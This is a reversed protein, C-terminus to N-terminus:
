GVQRSRSPRRSSAAPVVSNAALESAPPGAPSDIRAVVNLRAGVAAPREADPARDGPEGGGVSGPAHRSPRGPTPRSGQGPGTHALSEAGAIIQDRLAVAQYLSALLAIASDRLHRMAFSPGIRGPRPVGVDPLVADQRVQGCQAEQQGTCSRGTPPARATSFVGAGLGVRLVHDCVQAVAPDGEGVVRCRLAPDAVRALSNTLVPTAARAPRSTRPPGTPPGALPPGSRDRGRRHGGGPRRVPCRLHHGRSGPDGGRSLHNRHDRRPSRAPRSAPASAQGRHRGGPLASRRHVTRRRM